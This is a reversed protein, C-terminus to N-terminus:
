NCQIFFEPFESYSSCQDFIHSFQRNLMAPLLHIQLNNGIIFSSLSQILLATENLGTTPVISQQEVVTSVM